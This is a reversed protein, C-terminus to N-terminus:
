LDMKAGCNPCFPTEVWSQDLFGDYSCEDPEEWGCIICKGDLWRGHKVPNVDAAPIKDIENLFDKSCLGSGYVKGIVANRKIYETM